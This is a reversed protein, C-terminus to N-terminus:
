EKSDIENNNGQETKIMNNVMHDHVESFLDVLSCTYRQDISIKNSIIFDEDETHKEENKRTEFKFLKANGTWCNRRRDKIRFPKM